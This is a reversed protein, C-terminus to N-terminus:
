RGHFKLSTIVLKWGKIIFIKELGLWFNIIDVSKLGIPKIKNVSNIAANAMFTNIENFLDNSEGQLGLVNSSKSNVKIEKIIQWSVKSKNDSTELRKHYFNKRSEVLLKNYRRKEARYDERYLENNASLTFLIDLRSKCSTVEPVSTWSKKRNKSNFRKTPFCQQFLTEIINKFEEWQSDIQSSHCAFLNSWDVQSLLFKFHQKNEANFQRKKSSVSRVGGIEFRVIQALHDSTHPNFVKSTFAEINTYINDISSKKAGDIRTFETISPIINFSSLIKKLIGPWKADQLINLNFDGTLFIICDKCILDSLIEDLKEILIQPQETRYISLVVIKM